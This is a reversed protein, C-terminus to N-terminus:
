SCARRRQDLVGDKPKWGAEALLKAAKSLHKRADEPTRQGPEEMGQHLGGAAGRRKVENLIELERGASPRDGEAGLQRLLQRRRRVADYFLNKNTWEFDFALNFAQRVRPTRSSRGASTSRSPRCAAAVRRSRATEHKCGPRAQRRRLRLRDGLGQREVRALLRARRGQLGRLRARPRPLLRVPARRLEVPGQSVPLDKAWWDKVREYTIAAAPM